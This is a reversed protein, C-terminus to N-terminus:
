LFSWAGACGYNSRAGPSCKLTGRDAPPPGAIADAPVFTLFVLDVAARDWFVPGAAVFEVAVETYNKRSKRAPFVLGVVARDWFVPGAAVFEVAVERYNKRSKRAPFVLGVAARDWFVPGAAVFEVAVERYNKTSKRAPFVLGVAARDWFVPGAAVFEVAVETYNKTSKRAPFVFYGTKGKAELYAFESKEAASCITRESLLGFGDRQDTDFRHM